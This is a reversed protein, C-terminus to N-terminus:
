EEENEEKEARWTGVDTEEVETEDIEGKVDELVEKADKEAEKRIEKRNKDEEEKAKKEIQDIKKKMESRGPIEGLIEDAKGVIDELSKIETPERSPVERSAGLYDSAGEMLRSVEFPFLIKTAEGESMNKLTDLSLYTLAKEDLTNAGLSLIRLRQGEGQAELIKKMRTGEANLIRSQRKGEANLIKARRNGEAELIASRKQGDARLIAARREREAATQEEMADKVQPVPDVERIEVSEVRVGWDDTAEDLVERLHTNIRERNYLIEDLEMDGIVSRLTTQALNITAAKHDTVEFFAKKVDVVKIYIIADVNTPSNDKTIVEQRPVDLVQTRLDITIVDSIFPPVINVGPELTRRFNGLVIWIAQEYPQIIHFATRGAVVAFVIIIIVLGIIWFTPGELINLALVDLM